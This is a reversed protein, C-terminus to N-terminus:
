AKASTERRAKAEEITFEDVDGPDVLSTDVVYEEEGRAENFYALLADPMVVAEYVYASEFGSAEHFRQAFWIARELDATWSLGMQRDRTAGRYLTLPETPREKPARKSNHLYGVEEFLQVWYQESLGSSPYETLTWTEEIGKALHAPTLLNRVYAEVLLHPLDNRDYWPHGFRISNWSVGRSKSDLIKKMERLRWEFKVFKDFQLFNVGDEAARSYLAMMEEPSHNENHFFTDWEAVWKALLEEPVPEFLRDVDAM